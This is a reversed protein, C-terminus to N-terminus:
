LIGRVTSQVCVCVGTHYTECVEGSRNDTLRGSNVCEGTHDTACRGHPIATSHTPAARPRPHVVGGGKGNDGGERVSGRSPIVAISRLRYECPVQGFVIARRAFHMNNGMGDEVACAGGGGRRKTIDQAGPEALALQWM